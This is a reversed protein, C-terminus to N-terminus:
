NAKGFGRRFNDFLMLDEICPKRTRSGPPSFSPPSMRGEIIPQDNFVVQTAATLTIRNWGRGSQVFDTDGGSVTLLVLEYKTSPNKSILSLQQSSNTISRTSTNRLRSLRKLKQLHLRGLVHGTVLFAVYKKAFSRPLPHKVGM